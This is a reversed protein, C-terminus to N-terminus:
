SIRVASWTFPGAAEGSGTIRRGALTGLFVVRTGECTSSDFDFSITKKRAVWLGGCENSFEVTHTSSIVIEGTDGVSDSYSYTGVFSSAAAQTSDVAGAFPAPSAASVGSVGLTIVVVAAGVSAALRRSRLKSVALHM